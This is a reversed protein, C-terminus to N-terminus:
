KKVLERLLSGLAFLFFADAPIIFFLINRTIASLLLGGFVAGVWALAPKKFHKM